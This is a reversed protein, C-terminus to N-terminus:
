GALRPALPLDSFADLLLRTLDHMAGLIPRRPELGPQFGLATFRRLLEPNSTIVHVPVDWPADPGTVSSAPQHDGVLVMVYGRPAPRALYGALWTYTYQIMRLYAPYLDAWDTEDARSRALDTEDYPAASLVRGWDPQYPPVPRFPLHSTITPFFLLRPPTDPGIPFLEDFRAMSYQDPIRWFGLAPGRYGLDRGELFRDFGYYAREPWDWRLAPYYGFTEYGRSRFLGILTPRSTTVLLDHRLPDSLDIGALLGLHALDSAGGFTPSRVFASAVKRGSAEIAAALGERAPALRQCSEPNDFVTAGYSELFLLKVDAGRLAALNSSFEPSPPLAAALRGPSLATLLLSAQRLYTPTVPKSVVPWTAKAGMANLSALVVGAATAALATRSRLAFPAADRATVEIALRVLRYLAWLAVAVGLVAAGQQWLALDGLVVSLFRPIQASDWYLNVPRGFLAPVTVDAYRGLVLVTYVAALTALLRRSPTGSVRVVVLLLTWLVVLEPALRADPKILPTPWWNEFSLAFNLAL